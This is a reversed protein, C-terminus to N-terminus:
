KQGKFAIETGSLVYKEFWIPLQKAEINLNKKPTVQALLRLEKGSNDFIFARYSLKMAPLLNNLSKYYRERIKKEPVKHGGELVRQRVREINIEPSNTSIFYLYTRYGRENAIRIFNVKDSHSFVTEFSFTNKTNLISFRLFDTLIAIEYINASGYFEARTGVLKFSLSSSLRSYLGHRLVFNKLEDPSPALDYSNFDIFKEEEVKEFLDDANLYYGLNFDGKLQTNLTTKGSGNPGAFIRVRGV